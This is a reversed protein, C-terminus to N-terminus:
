FQYGLGLVARTAAPSSTVSYRLSNAGVTVVGSLTQSDYSAYALEGFAYLKNNIIKKYGVGVLYGNYNEVGTSDPVLIQFGLRAYLLDDASMKIGPMVFFGTNYLQKTGSISKPTGSVKVNLIPTKNGLPSYAMGIGVLYDSGVNWNYGLIMSAGVGNSLSSGLTTPIAQGLLTKVSISSRTSPHMYSLGVEGYWGEFGRPPEEALAVPSARMLVLLMILGPLYARLGASCCEVSCDVLM